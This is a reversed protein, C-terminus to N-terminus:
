CHRTPKKKAYCPSTSRALPSSSSSGYVLPASAAAYGTACRLRIHRSPHAAPETASTDPTCQPMDSKTSPLWRLSASRWVGADSAPSKTQQKPLEAARVTRPSAFANHFSLPFFGPFFLDQCVRLCIAIHSKRIVSLNGVKCASGISPRIFLAEM